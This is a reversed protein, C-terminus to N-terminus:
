LVFNPQIHVFASLHLGKTCWALTTLVFYCQLILYALHILMCLQALHILSTQLICCVCLIAVVNHLIIYYSAVLQM